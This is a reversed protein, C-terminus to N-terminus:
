RRHEPNPDTIPVSIIDCQFTDNEPLHVNFDAPWHGVESLHIAGGCQRKHELEDLTSLTRRIQRRERREHLEKRIKQILVSLLLGFLTFCLGSLLFAITISPNDAPQHWVLIAQRPLTM